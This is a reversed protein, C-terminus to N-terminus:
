RGVQGPPTFHPLYAPQPDHVFVIDAQLNLRAANERNIEYHLDSTARKSRLRGLGQM